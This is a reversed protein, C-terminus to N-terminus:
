QHLSLPLIAHHHMMTFQATLFLLFILKLVKGCAFVNLSTITLKKLKLSVKSIITNGPSRLNERCARAGSLFKKYEMQMFSYHFITGFVKPLRPSQGQRYIFLICSWEGQCFPSHQLYFYVKWPCSLRLSISGILPHNWKTYMYM